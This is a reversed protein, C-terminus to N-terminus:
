VLKHHTFVTRTPSGPLRLHFCCAQLSHLKSKNSIYQLQIQKWDKKKKKTKKFNM